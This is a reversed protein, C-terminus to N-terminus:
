KLPYKDINKTSAANNTKQMLKSYLDWDIQRLINNGPAIGAIAPFTQYKKAISVFEETGQQIGNTALMMKGNAWRQWREGPLSYNTNLQQAKPMNGIEIACGVALARSKDANPDITLVAEFNTLAEEYHTARFAADANAYQDYPWNTYNMKNQIWWQDLPQLDWPYFSVGAIKNLANAIRNVTWLDKSSHALEVLKSVFLTQKPDGILNVVGDLNPSVTSKLYDALEDSTFPGGYQFDGSKEGLSVFSPAAKDVVLTRQVKIFMAQALPATENTGQAVTQLEQIADRDFVEGRNLLAMLKQEDQLKKTKEQAADVSSQLSNIEERLPILKESVFNDMRNTVVDRAAADLTPKNMNDAVFQKTWEKIQPPAYIWLLVAVIANAIALLIYRTISVRKGGIIEERLKEKANAVEQRLNDRAADLATNVRIEVLNQIEIPLNNESGTENIPKGDPGLLPKNNM